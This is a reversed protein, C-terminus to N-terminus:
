TPTDAQLFSLVVRWMRKRHIGLPTCHALGPLVSIQKDSTALREFFAVIDALTAIGDHEGRVILTPAAIATPDVVPLNSTMDLYTGTPVSDAYALQADACAGMVAPDTTGEHDRTFISTVFARDIPRRAHTRFYEVGERRKALTPSGEGTWVFADLVLRSVRDPYDAAFAAARLSGSSMGYFAARPQGTERAIVGSLAALDDVGCRIDSNGATITSNGYGEHDMTWVDFGRAAFWDMMSYDAAGPVALDFTPLASLSSGHVLVLVPLPGAGPRRKRWVFLDVDGKTAALREGAFTEVAAVFTM